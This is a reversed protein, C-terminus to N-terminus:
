KRILPNRTKLRPFRAFDRDCTWLERVGHYLCLAAIRADHIMGGRAQSSNVTEALIEFYGPGESLFGAWGHNWQDLAKIALAPPTIKKYVRPNTVVALFEHACQWPIAWPEGSEILERLARTAASHWPCEEMFGYVLINTDVAIM